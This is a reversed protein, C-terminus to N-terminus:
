AASFEYGSEIERRFARSPRGACSNDYVVCNIRVAPDALDAHVRILL